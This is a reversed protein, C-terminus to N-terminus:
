PQAACYRAAELMEDWTMQRGINRMQQSIDNRRTGSAFAQLQAKIYVASQRDLWPTGLKISNAPLAPRSTACQRAAPSSTRSISPPTPIHEPSVRCFPSMIANARAAVKFDRLQKYIAAAPQGELNPTDVQGLRNAGHYIACQMALAPDALLCRHDINVKFRRSEVYDGCPRRYM